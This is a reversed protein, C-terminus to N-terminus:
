EIIVLNRPLTKEPRMKLARWGFITGKLAWPM